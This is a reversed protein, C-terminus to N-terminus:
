PIIHWNASKPALPNITFLYNFLLNNRVSVHRYELLWPLLSLEKFFTFLSNESLSPLCHPRNTLPGSRYDQLESNLVEESITETQKM